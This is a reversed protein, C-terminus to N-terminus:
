ATTYPEFCNTQFIRQEKYEERPTKGEWKGPPEIPAYASYMGINQLDPFEDRFNRCLYSGFSQRYQKNKDLSLAELLHQDREEAFAHLGAAQGVITQGPFPLDVITGNGLQGKLMVHRDNTGLRSYMSWGQRIYFFEIYKRYHPYLPQVLPSWPLSNLVLISIHTFLFASLLTKQMRRCLKSQWLRDKRTSM